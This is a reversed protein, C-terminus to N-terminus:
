SKQHFWDATLEDITVVGDVGEKVQPGLQSIAKVLSEGAELVTHAPPPSGNMYHENFQKGVEDNGWPQGTNAADVRARLATWKTSLTDGAATLKAAGKLAGDPDVATEHDTM